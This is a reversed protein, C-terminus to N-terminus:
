CIVVDVLFRRLLIGTALGAIGGGIIVVKM